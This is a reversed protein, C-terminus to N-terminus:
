ARPRPLFSAGLLAAGVLFPILGLFMTKPEIQLLAVLLGAGAALNILGGIRLGERRRRYDEAAQERVMELLREESIEGREAVKRALEHQYFSERERRRQRAWVVIALFVFMGLMSILVMAASVIEWFDHQQMVQLHPLSAQALFAYLTM